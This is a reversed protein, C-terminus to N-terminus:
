GNNVTKPPPLPSIGQAEGEFVGFCHSEAKNGGPRPWSRKTQTSM